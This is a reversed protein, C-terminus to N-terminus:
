KSETVKRIGDKAYELEGFFSEDKGRTYQISVLGHEKGAACNAELDDIYITKEPILNFQSIVNEYIEPDPKMSKAEHSFVGGEFLGFVPYKSFLFPLHIGNTNSLLLLRTGHKHEAEILDVIPQNLEFVDQFSDILFDRDGSYGIEEISGDLFQDSTIKGSELDRTMTEIRPLIENEPVASFPAIKRASINFDFSVIVHGIDFLLTYSM